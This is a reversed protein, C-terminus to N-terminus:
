LRLTCPPMSVIFHSMTLRSVCVAAPQCTVAAHSRQLLLSQRAPKPVPSSRLTHAGTCVAPRTTCMSLGFFSQQCRNAYAATRMTTHQARPTGAPLHRHWGPPLGCGRVAAAQQPGPLCLCSRHGPATTLPWCCGVWDQVKWHWERSRGLRCDTVCAVAPARQVWRKLMGATVTGCWGVGGRGLGM